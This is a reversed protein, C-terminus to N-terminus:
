LMGVVARVVNLLIPYVWLVMAVKNLSAPCYLDGAMKLFSAWVMWGGIYLVIGLIFFNIYWSRFEQFNVTKKELKQKGMYRRFPNSVLRWLDQLPYKFARIPACRLIMGGILALLLIGGPILMIIGGAHYVKYTDPKAPNRTKNPFIAAFVAFNVAPIAFLLDAVMENIAHEMWSGNFFGAIAIISAARPRVTWLFAQQIWNVTYGQKELIVGMIFPISIQVGISWLMSLFNLKIETYEWSKSKGFLTKWLHTNFLVACFLAIINSIALTSLLKSAKPCSPAGSFVLFDKPLWTAKQANDTVCASTNLPPKTSSQANTCRIYQEAAQMECTFLNLSQQACNTSGGNNCCGSRGFEEADFICADRLTELADPFRCGSRVVFDNLPVFEDPIPNQDSHKSLDACIFYASFVDRFCQAFHIAAPNRLKTPSNVPPCKSLAEIDSACFTAVHDWFHFQNFSETKTINYRLHLYQGLVRSTLLSVFLTFIIFAM